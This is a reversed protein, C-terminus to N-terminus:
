ALELGDIGFESFQDLHTVEAAVALDLDGLQLTDVLAGHAAAPVLSASPQEDREAVASAAALDLRLWGALWENLRADGPPGERVDLGRILDWSSDFWGPGQSAPQHDVCAADLRLGQLTRQSVVARTTAAAIRSRLNLHFRTM